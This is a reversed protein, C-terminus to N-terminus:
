CPPVGSATGCITISGGQSVNGQTKISEGSLEGSVPLGFAEISAIAKSGELTFSCSFAFTDTTAPCGGTPETVKWKNLGTRGAEKWATQAKKISATALSKAEILKSEKLPSNLLPLSIATLVSVILITIILEVMTFGEAQNM